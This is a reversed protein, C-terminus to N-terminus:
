GLVLRAQRLNVENISVLMGNNAPSGGFFFCCQILDTSYLLYRLGYSDMPHCQDQQRCGPVLKRQSVVSVHGNCGTAHGNVRWHESTSM